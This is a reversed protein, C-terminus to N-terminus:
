RRNVHEIVLRGPKGVIMWSAFLVSDIWPNGGRSGVPSFIGDKNINWLVTLGDQLLRYSGRFGTERYLTIVSGVDINFTSQSISETLTDELKSEQQMRPLNRHNRSFEDIQDNLKNIFVEFQSFLNHNVMYVPAVQKRQRDREEETLIRSVFTFDFESVVRTRATQDQSVRPGSPALGWFCILIVAVVSALVIGLTLRRSKLLFTSAAQVRKERLHRSRIPVRDNRRLMRRILPSM